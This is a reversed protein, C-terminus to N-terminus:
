GRNRCEQVRGVSVKVCEADNDGGAFRRGTREAAVATTGAGLFPDVVLAGAETHKEILKEFVDLPKQTPHVRDRGGPIPASYIGNDYHGNFVGGGGKVAVIAAERANSLYTARTNIPVPNLKVWEIFRLKVFGASKLADALPTLKWLDYWCILTGSRRLAAYAAPAFTDLDIEQKDWDGFRTNVHLKDVGGDVFGTERSIAYPPDTLILDVDHQRALTVTWDECVIEPMPPAEDAADTLRKTRAARDAEQRNHHARTILAARTIPKEAERAEAKAAEYDADPLAHARRMASVTRRDLTEGPGVNSGRDPSGGRPKPPNARAIAREADAVLEAAAVQIDRRKMVAAAAQYAAATDRIRIRAFDDRAAALATRAADLNVALATATM